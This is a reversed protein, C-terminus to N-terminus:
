GAIGAMEYAEQPNHILTKTRWKALHKIAHVVRVVEGGYTVRPGISTPAAKRGNEIGSRVYHRDGVRTDQPASSAQHPADIRRAGERCRDSGGVPRVGHGPNSYSVRGRRVGTARCGAATGVHIEPMDAM